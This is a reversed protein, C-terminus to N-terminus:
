PAVRLVDIMEFRGPQQQSLWAAATVAGRAFVSRNLAMHELSIVEEESMAMIKHLGFIGGGRISLPPPLPRGVATELTKQLLLATGSPADKKHRHHAEEIQLDFDSLQAFSKLLANVFAIGLSMNPAWLIPIDAAADDVLKRQSDNLGTTGSVLFKKHVRCWELTSTFAEPLSFDIVGDITDESVESLSFLPGQSRSIQAALELSKHETVLECVERGMRGSAGMVAIRVSKM